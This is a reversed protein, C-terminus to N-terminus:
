DHETKVKWLRYGQATIFHHLPLVCTWLLAMLLLGWVPSWGWEVDSLRVGGFYALPGGLGGFLIAAWRREYFWRMAHNLSLGLLAWLCTLWFPAWGGGPFDLVGLFGLLNDHALGILIAVPIALLDWKYNTVVSFHFAVVVLTYGLAALGGFLVCVFWGLQYLFANILWYNKLM